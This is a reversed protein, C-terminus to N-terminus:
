IQTNYDCLLTGDVLKLIPITLTKTLSTTIRLLIAKKTPKKLCIAYWLYIKMCNSLNITRYGVMKKM